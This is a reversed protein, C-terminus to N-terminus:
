CSNKRGADALSEMAALRANELRPAPPAKEIQEIVELPALRAVLELASVADRAVLEDSGCAAGVLAGAVEKRTEPCASLALPDETLVARIMAASMASVRRDENSLGECLEPLFDSGHRALAIAASWKVAKVPDQMAARLLIASERLPASGEDLKSSLRLIARVKEESAGDRLASGVEDLFISDHLPDNRATPRFFPAGRRERLMM